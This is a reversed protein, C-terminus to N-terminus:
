SEGRTLGEEDELDGLAFDPKPVEINKDKLRPSLTKVDQRLRRIGHTLSTQQNNLERRLQELLLEEARVDRLAMNANFMAQKMRLIKSSCLYQILLASCICVVTIIWWYM